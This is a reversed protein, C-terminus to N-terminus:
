KHKRATPHTTTLRPGHDTKDADDTSGDDGTQVPAPAHTQAPVHKMTLPPGGPAPATAHTVTVSTPCATGAPTAAWGASLKDGPNIQAPKIPVATKRDAGEAYGTLTQAERLDIVRETVLKGKRPGEEEKAGSVNVGVTKGDVYVVTAGKVKNEDAM